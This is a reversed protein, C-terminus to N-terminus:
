CSVEPQLWQRIDCSSVFIPLIHLGLRFQLMLACRSTMDKFSACSLESELFPILCSTALAAAIQEESPAAEGEAVLDPDDAAMANSDLEARVATGLVSDDTKDASQWAPWLFIRLMFIGIAL